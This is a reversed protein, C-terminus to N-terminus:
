GQQAGSALNIHADKFRGDRLERLGVGVRLLGGSLYDSRTASDQLGLGDIAFGQTARRGTPHGSMQHAQHLMATAGRQGLILHGLFAVFDGGHWAQQGSAVQGIGHHRHIRQQGLAGERLLNDVLAPVIQHNHLAILGLQVVVQCQKKVQGRNGGIVLVPILVLRNGFSV